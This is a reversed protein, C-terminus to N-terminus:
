MVILGTFVPMFINYRSDKFMTYVVNEDVRYAISNYPLASAVVTM